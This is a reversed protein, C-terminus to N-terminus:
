YEVRPDVVFYLIDMALYVLVSLMAILLAVGQVGAYDKVFISETAYLGIGPWTFVIEVVVVGGLSWLVSDAVFTITPILANKLAYSYYIKNDPIGYARATRIYDSDLVEIMTSRVMRSIGAIQGLALASAPLIIHRVSSILARTNGTLLSDVIYLGTIQTPPTVNIGLRGMPSPLIEFEFSLFYILILGLWFTPMSFGVLGVIRVFRDLVSDKHVAGAVGLPIGIIVSLLMGVLTLEVTAPFRAQIDKTVPNGTRWATGLDGHLVDNLYMVYQVPIPKDLGLERTLRAVKEETFGRGGLILYVPNGPLIRSVVFVLLIVVLVVPIVWVLRRLLYFLFKVM